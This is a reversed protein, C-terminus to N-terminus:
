PKVLKGAFLNTAVGDVMATAKARDLMSLASAEVGAVLRHAERRARAPHRHNYFALANTLRSLSRSLNEM